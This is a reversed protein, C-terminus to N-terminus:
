EPRVSYSLRRGDPHFNVSKPSMVDVDRTATDSWSYNQKKGICTLTISGDDAQVREGVRVKRVPPEGLAWSFSAILLAVLLLRSISITKMHYHTLFYTAFIVIMAWDIVM